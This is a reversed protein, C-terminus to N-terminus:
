NLSYNLFYVAVGVTLKSVRHSIRACNFANLLGNYKEALKGWFVNLSRCTLFLASLANLICVGHHVPQGM